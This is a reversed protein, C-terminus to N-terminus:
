KKFARDNYCGQKKTALFFLFTICLSLTPGSPNSGEVLQKLPLQEVMSSHDRIPAGSPVQVGLGEPGFGSARDLQAVPANLAIYRYLVFGM